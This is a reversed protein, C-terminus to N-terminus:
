FRYFRSIKLRQALNKSELAIMERTTWGKRTRVLDINNTIAEKIDALVIGQDLGIKLAQTKLEKDTFVSKHKTLDEIAQSLIQNPTLTIKNPTQHLLDDIKYGMKTLRQATIKSIKVRTLSQKGSKTKKKLMEDIQAKHANPYKAELEARLEKAAEM